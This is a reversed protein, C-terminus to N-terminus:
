GLARLEDVTASRSPKPAMGSLSASPGKRRATEIHNESISKMRHFRDHPIGHVVIKEARDVNEALDANEAPDAGPGALVVLLRHGLQGAPDGLRADAAGALAHG